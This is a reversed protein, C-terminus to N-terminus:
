GFGHNKGKQLTGDGAEPKVGFFRMLFNERLSLPQFIRFMNYFDLFGAEKSCYAYVPRWLPMFKRKFSLESKSPYLWGGYEYLMSFIIKLFSQNATDKELNSLPAMGLSLHRFGRATAIKSLADVMLESTGNPAGPGIRTVDVYMASAAPVEYAIAFGVAHGKRMAIFSRQHAQCDLFRNNIMFSILNNGKERLWCDTIEGCGKWFEEHAFRGGSLEQMVIGEKQAKRIMRRVSKKHRLVPLPILAEEGLYIKRYEIKPFGAESDGLTSFYIEHWQNSRCFERFEQVAGRIRESACVPEGLVLALSGYESYSIFGHGDKLAFRSKEATGALCSIPNKGYKNYIDYEIDTFGL